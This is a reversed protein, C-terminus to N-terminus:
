GPPQFDGEANIMWLTGFRDRCCGWAPSWFTQGLESEVEGGDALAKWVREAEAVEPTSFQVYTSEPRPVDGPADSAMLMQGDPLTLAAHVVMGAQEPPVEEGGPLDDTGLVFLEGGFIEQYRTFAERCNGRFNLYPHFAM